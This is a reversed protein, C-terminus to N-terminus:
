DGQNVHQRAVREAFLRHAGQVDIVKQPFLRGVGVLREDSGEAPPEVYLQPDDAVVDGCVSGLV